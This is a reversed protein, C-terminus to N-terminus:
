NSIIITDAELCDSDIYISDSILEDPEDIYGSLKQLREMESDGVQINNEVYYGILWQAARKGLCAQEDAKKYYMAALDENTMDKDEIGAYVDGLLKCALPIRDALPALVEISPSKGGGSKM